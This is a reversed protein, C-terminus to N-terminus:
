LAPPPGANKSRGVNLAVMDLVKRAIILPGVIQPIPVIAAVASAVGIIQFGLELYQSFDGINV